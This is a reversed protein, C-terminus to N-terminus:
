DPNGSVRSSVQRVGARAGTRVRAVTLFVPSLTELRAVRLERRFTEDAPLRALTEEMSDIAPV